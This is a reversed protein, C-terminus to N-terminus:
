QSLAQTKRIDHNESKPPHQLQNEDDTYPKSDSRPIKQNKGMEASKTRNLINDGHVFTLPYEPLRLHM